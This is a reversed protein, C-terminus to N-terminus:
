SQRVKRGTFYIPAGIDAYSYTGSGNDHIFCLVEIIDQFQPNLLSNAPM